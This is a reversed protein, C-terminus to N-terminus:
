SIYEITTPENSKLYDFVNETTLGGVYGDNKLKIALEQLNRTAEEHLITNSHGSKGEKM